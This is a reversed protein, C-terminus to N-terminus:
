NRSLLSIKKMMIKGDAESGDQKKTALKELRAKSNELIKRRREQARALFADNEMSNDSM